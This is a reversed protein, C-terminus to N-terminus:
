VFIYIINYSIERLNVSYFHPAACQATNVLAGPGHLHKWPGNLVFLPLQAHAHWGLPLRQAQAISIPTRAVCMRVPITPLLAKLGHLVWHETHLTM